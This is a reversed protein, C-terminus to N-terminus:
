QGYRVKDLVFPIITKDVGANIIENLDEDFNNKFIEFGDFLKVSEIYMEVAAKINNLCFEIHGANLYDNANAKNDIIQKYYKQATEFKRALFSCWAISKWARINNNSLFDVKFYYNLAEDFEKLALFCNGINLQINLDDPKLQELKKYYMLASEPEKIMRYCAGIRRILWSNNEDMLEAKLYAQLAGNIDGSMQKCYGIKQWTELNPSDIEALQSYAELAVGLNNKEFYHLAIKHLNDYRTIISSIPTIKHFDLNHAFIDDFDDKRKYLKYFRYLDQTYQKYIAKEKQDTNISLEEESLKKLEEGEHGLQSIMMKRYQEPMQMISFCLSYKDSNCMMSTNLMASLLDEGEQKNSFMSQLSSHYKDFPIFWNCVENFFPYNKLNSFTSHFVDAGGLQMDSFEALKDSLGSDDLIKQWDPNKEELGSEGMWEDLNIKKGISPSLKMMEPFIEENLKKSIKETEHAQIFQVIANMLRNVFINNDSMLSIRSTLQTYYKWRNKYERLIPILGVIARASIETEDNNTIDLILEIKKEDFRQLINLTLASVIMCKTSVSVHNSNIIINYAEVQDNNYSESIFISYFLEKSYNEYEHQLQNVRNNKEEGEPMLSTVSMSDSIRVFIDHYKDITNPQNVKSIRTKEFFISSSEKIQQQTLIEDILNYIDRIMHNYINEQQPDRKGEVIYHIMFRYNAELNNANEKASWNYFKDAINNIEDFANKIENNEIYSYIKNRINIAETIKM